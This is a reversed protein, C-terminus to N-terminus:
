QAQLFYKQLFTRPGQERGSAFCGRREGTGEQRSPQRTPFASRKHEQLFMLQLSLTQDCLPFSRL